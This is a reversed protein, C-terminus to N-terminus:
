KAPETEFHIVLPIPRKSGDPDEGGSIVQESRSVVYGLLKGLDGILARAQVVPAADYRMVPHEDGAGDLKFDEVELRHPREEILKRHELYLWELERIHAEISALNADHLNEKVEMTLREIEETHRERFKSVAQYSVKARYAALLAVVERLSKGEVTWAIVLAGIDPQEL